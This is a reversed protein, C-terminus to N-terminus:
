PYWRGFWAALGSPYRSPEAYAPVPGVIDGYVAAAEGKEWFAKVSWSCDALLDLNTSQPHLRSTKTREQMMAMNDATTIPRGAPVATSAFLAFVAVLLSAASLADMERPAAAVGNLSISPPHESLGFPTLPM